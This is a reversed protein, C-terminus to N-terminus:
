NDEIGTLVDHKQMETKMYQLFVRLMQKTVYYMQPLFSFFFCFQM